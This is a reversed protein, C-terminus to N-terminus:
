GEAQAANLERERQVTMVRAIQHRVQKLRTPNDLQGTVNQFRLNFLEEKFEDYKEVLEADSLERLESAQMSM